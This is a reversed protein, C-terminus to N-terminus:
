SGIPAAVEANDRLTLELRVGAPLEVTEHPSKAAVATGAAAGLMAGVLRGRDASRAQDGLITGIATGAAITAADKGTESRGERRFRADIEAFGDATALQDFRIELIARGGIAGLPQAETVRGQVHAGAPVAVVGGVLIPEALEGAVIDGALWSQSSVAHALQIVIHTSEPISVSETRLARLGGRARVVGASFAPASRTRGASTPGLTAAVSREARSTAPTTQDPRVPRHESIAYGVAFSMAVVAAVALRRQVKLDSM